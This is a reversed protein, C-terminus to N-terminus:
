LVSKIWVKKGKNLNWMNMMGSDIVVRYPPLWYGTNYAAYSDFELMLGNSLKLVTGNGMSQIVSATLGLSTTVSGKMLRAVYFDGYIYLTATKQDSSIGIVDELPLGFYNRDLKWLSGGALKIIEGKAESVSETFFQVKGEPMAATQTQNGASSRANNLQDLQTLAERTNADLIQLNCNQNKLSQRCAEMSTLKARLAEISEAGVSFSSALLLLFILKPLRRLSM